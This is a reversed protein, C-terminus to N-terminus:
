MYIIIILFIFYYRSVKDAIGKSVISKVLTKDSHDTVLSFGFGENHGENILTISVLETIQSANQPPTTVNTHPHTAVNTHPPTAVYIPPTAINHTTTTVNGPISPVTHVPNSTINPPTAKYVLPPMTKPTLAVPSPQAKYVTPTAKSM